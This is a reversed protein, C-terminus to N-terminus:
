RDARRWRNRIVVPSERGPFRVEFREAFEREGVIEYELVVQTGPPANETREAVFRMRRPVESAGDMVLTNVFGESNFQRVVYTKRASDYSFVTWDDHAQAARDGEPPFRSANESLLYHGQLVFRYTREGRGKGFTAVEEGTWSGVFYELPKWVESVPSHGQVTVIMVLTALGLKMM